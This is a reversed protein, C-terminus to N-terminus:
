RITSESFLSVLKLYLLIECQGYSNRTVDLPSTGADNDIYNNVCNHVSNAISPQNM